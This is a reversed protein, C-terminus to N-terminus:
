SNPLETFCRNTITMHSYYMLFPSDTSGKNEEIENENEFDDIWEEQWENIASNTSLRARVRQGTKSKIHAGGKRLLPSRAVPNRVTITYKAM